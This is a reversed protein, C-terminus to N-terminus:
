ANLEGDQNDDQEDGIVPKLEHARGDAIVLEQYKGPLV